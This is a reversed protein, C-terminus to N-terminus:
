GNSHPAEFLLLSLDSLRGRILAFFYLFAVSHLLSSIEELFNSISLSSKMCPHACYLLSITHVHWFRFIINLLPPLFVCFSVFFSRWSGFLSSPTILWRSGFMRSYLTLRDKPLLVLFLPLPPSPIGTSSNWIRFSLAQFHQVWYALLNSFSLLPWLAPFPWNENWDWLFAIGFFTWVIACNCENWMNASYHEFNGLGPKLLVHFLFKWIYLGPKAFASSGSILNGVGMPDYLFCSFELFVDAENVINILAKSQTSWM